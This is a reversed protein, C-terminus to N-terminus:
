ERVEGVNEVGQLLMSLPHNRKFAADAWPLPMWQKTIQWLDYFFGADPGQTGLEQSLREMDTPWSPMMGHNLRRRHAVQNHDLVTAPHHFWHPMREAGTPVGDVDVYRLRGWVVDIDANHTFADNVHLLWDPCYFDDDALYCIIEGDVYRTAQNIGMAMRAPGRPIGPVTTTLYYDIRPEAAVMFLDTSQDDVIILQWNEHTQQMVSEIARMAMVPRNYYSMIVTIKM